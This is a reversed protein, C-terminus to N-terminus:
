IIYVMGDADVNRPTLVGREAIWDCTVDESWNNISSINGYVFEILLEVRPPLCMEIPLQIKGDEDGEDGCGISLQWRVFKQLKKRDNDCTAERM